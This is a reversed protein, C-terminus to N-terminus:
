VIFLVLDQDSSLEPVLVLSSGHAQSMLLLLQPLVMYSTSM